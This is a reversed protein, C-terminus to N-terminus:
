PDVNEPPFVLDVFAIRELPATSVEPPLLRPSHRIRSSSFRLPFANAALLSPAQGCFSYPVQFPPSSLRRSVRIFNLEVLLVLSRAVVPFSLPKVLLM